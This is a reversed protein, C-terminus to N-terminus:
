GPCILITLVLLVLLVLFPISASEGLDGLHGAKLQYGQEILKDETKGAKEYYVMLTGNNIAAYKATREVLITFASKMM